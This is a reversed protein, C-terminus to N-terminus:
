ASGSCATDPRTGPGSTSSCGSRRPVPAAPAWGADLGRHGGRRPAAGHREDDWLSRMGGGRGSRLVLPGPTLCAARRSLDALHSTLGVAQVLWGFAGLGHADILEAEGSARCLARAYGLPDDGGAGAAATRGTVGLARLARRQPPSCPRPRM